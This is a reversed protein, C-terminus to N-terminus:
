HDFKGFTLTCSCLVKFLFNHAILTMSRVKASKKMIIVCSYETFFDTM